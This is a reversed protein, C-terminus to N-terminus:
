VYRGPITVSLGEAVTFTWTARNQEALKVARVAAQEVEARSAGSARLLDLARLIAATQASSLFTTPTTM